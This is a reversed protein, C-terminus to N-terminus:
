ASWRARAIRLGDVRELWPRRGCGSSPRARRASCSTPRTAAASRCSCSPTSPRCSRSTSPCPSSACCGRRARPVAPRGRGPRRASRPARPVPRSQAQLFHTSTGPPLDDVIAVLEEVKAHDGLALAAECAAVFSEKVQEASFGFNTRSEFAEEAHRLAEAPQRPDSDRARSRASTPPASRSTARPRWRARVRRDDAHRQGARRPPRRGDRGRAAHGLVGRAGAGMRGHPACAFM